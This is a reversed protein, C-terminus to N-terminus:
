PAEGIVLEPNFRGDAIVDFAPRQVMPRPRMTSWSLRPRGRADCSRRRRTPPLRKKCSSPPAREGCDMPRAIRPRSNKSM